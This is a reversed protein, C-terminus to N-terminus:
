NHEATLHVSSKLEKCRALLVEWAFCFHTSTAESNSLVILLRWAPTESAGMDTAKSQFSGSPCQRYSPVWFRGRVQKKM